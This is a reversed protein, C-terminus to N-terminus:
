IGCNELLFSAIFVSQMPVRIRQLFEWFVRVFQGNQGFVDFGDNFHLEIKQQIKRSTMSFKLYNISELLIYM